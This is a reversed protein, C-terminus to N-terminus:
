RPANARRSLRTARRNRHLLPLDHARAPFVGAVSKRGDETKLVGLDPIAARFEAEAADGLTTIEVAIARREAILKANREHFSNPLEVLVPAPATNPTAANQPEAAFTPASALLSVLVLKATRMM